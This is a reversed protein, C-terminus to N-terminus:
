RKLEEEFRSQWDREDPQPREIRRNRIRRHKYHFELFSGVFFAISCCGMFFIVCFFAHAITM